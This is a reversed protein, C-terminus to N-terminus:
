YINNRVTDKNFECVRIIHDIHWEGYNDWAMGETFLSQLHNKLDLSSYGLLDVTKGEKHKGFRTMTNHLIQRWMKIHKNKIYSKRNYDPNNQYWKKYVESVKEKNLERYKKSKINNIVRHEELNKLYWNKNSLKIKDKNNKRYNKNIDKSCIRCESRLINKPKYKFNFETLEKEIGCKTCIKCEM